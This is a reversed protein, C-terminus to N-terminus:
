NSFADELLREIEKKHAMQYAITETDCSYLFSNDIVCKTVQPSLVAPTGARTDPPRATTINPKLRRLRYGRRSLPGRAM